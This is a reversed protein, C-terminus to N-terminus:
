TVDLVQLKRGTFIKLLQATLNIHMSYKDYKKRYEPLEKVVRSMDGTDMMANGEGRSKKAQHQAIESRDTFQKFEHPLVGLVTAIHMHKFQAWLWDEESLVDKKTETEGQQTVIERSIVGSESVDLVDHCMAQYTLEHLLPAALDNARDVVLVTARAGTNHRDANKQLVGRSVDRGHDVFRRLERHLASAVGRAAESGEQYRILPVDGREDGLTICLSGLRRAIRSHTSAPNPAPVASPPAYLHYFSEPMDLSFVQDEVAMFEM